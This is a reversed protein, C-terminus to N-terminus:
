DERHKYAAMARRAGPIVNLDEVVQVWLRIGQSIIRVELVEFFLKIVEFGEVIGGIIGLFHLDRDGITM